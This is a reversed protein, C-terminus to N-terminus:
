ARQNRISHYIYTGIATLVSVVFYYVDFHYHAFQNPNHFVFLGILVACMAIFFPIAFMMGIIYVIMADRRNRSQETSTPFYIMFIFLNSALFIWIFDLKINNFSIFDQHNYSFIVIASFVTLLIVTIYHANLLQQKSVPLSHHFLYAEDHGFHKFIRYAHAADIIGIIFIIIFIPTFWVEYDEKFYNYIPLVFLLMMYIIITMKHLYLNRKILNFM